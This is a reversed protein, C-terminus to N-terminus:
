PCDRFDNLHHSIGRERHPPWLCLPLDKYKGQKKLVKYTSAQGNKGNNANNRGTRPVIGRAITSSIDANGEHSAGNEVLEFAVSNKQSQKFFNKFDKNLHARSFSLDSELLSRLKAPLSADIVHKM